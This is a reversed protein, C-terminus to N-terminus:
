GGSCSPSTANPAPTALWSRACAYRTAHLAHDAAKVPHEDVNGQENIEGSAAAFLGPTRDPEGGKRPSPGPSLDRYWYHSAPTGSREPRRGTSPLLAAAQGLVILRRFRRM